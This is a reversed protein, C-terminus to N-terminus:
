DTAVNFTLLQPAACFLKICQLLGLIQASPRPRLDATTASASLPLKIVLEAKDNRTSPSSAGNTRSGQVGIAVPRLVGNISKGSIGAM